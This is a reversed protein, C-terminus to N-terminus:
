KHAIFYYEKNTNYLETFESLELSKNGKVFDSLNSIKLGIEKNLFSYIEEPKTGYYESAGLGFEFVVYPRDRKLLEVAGRLVDFEGGEVDIKIFDIKIDKSILKDLKKLEVKIEEIDAHEVAYKRKNIGSYAPANKVFQFTSEGDKNSLAYPLIEAKGKYNRQLNDFMVPIPEFGYHKGKPALKLIDDLIEGKHCGVDICNSDQNIIKKMILKTLRDYKLNQTLDLHVSNLFLRIINKIGM